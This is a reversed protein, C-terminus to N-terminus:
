AMSKPALLQFIMEKLLAGDVMSANNVGKSRLDFGNIISIGEEIEEQTYNTLAKRYNRVFFRASYENKPSFGLNRALSTDDQNRYSLSLYLKSYFSFTQLIVVVIPNKKPNDAFYNIIRQAKYMDRSAIADQLEFVNYKKSIGIHKEIIKSDIKSKKPILIFLKDLENAIKALEVGLHDAILLTSQDDIEYDNDSVYKSIWKPIENDYLKKSKYIDGKAKIAKGLAKRMDITGQKYQIVFVTSPVPNDLYATLDNLSKMDQAEKLIILQYPSMMPYRMCSDIVQKATADKGYWISMNFSKESESLVKDEFAQTLLDINYDEEGHLLYVPKYKKNKIDKLIDTKLLM